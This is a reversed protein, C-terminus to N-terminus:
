MGQDCMESEWAGSTSLWGIYRADNQRKLLEIQPGPTILAALTSVSPSSSLLAAFSSSVLVSGITLQTLMIFLPRLRLQLHWLPESRVPRSPCLARLYGSGQAPPARRM